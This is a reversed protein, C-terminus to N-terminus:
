VVTPSTIDYDGSDGAVYLPPEKGVIRDPFPSGCPQQKGREHSADDARDLPLHDVADRREPLSPGRRRPDRTGASMPARLEGQTDGAREGGDPRLRLGDYRM